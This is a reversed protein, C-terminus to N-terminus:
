IVNEWDNIEDEDYDEEKIRLQEFDLMEKKEVDSFKVDAEYKIGLSDYYFLVYSEPEGSGYYEIYPSNYIDECEILSPLYKKRYVFDGGHGSPFYVFMKELMMIHQKLKEVENDQFIINRNEYHDADGFMWEIDLIYCNEHGQELKKAIIFEM